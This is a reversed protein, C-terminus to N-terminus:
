EGVADDDEAWRSNFYDITKEVAEQQEDRMDFDAHHSGEYRKGARLEAIATRVDAASCRM